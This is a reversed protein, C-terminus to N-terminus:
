LPKRLFLYGNNRVTKVIYDETLVRLKARVRGTLVDMTRSLPDFEQQYIVSFLHEKSVVKEPNAILQGLLSTEKESLAVKQSGLHLEQTSIDLALDKYKVVFGLPNESKSQGPYLRLVSRIRALLETLVYPKVVYQDAGADLCAVITQTNDNGTIMVVPVTISSKISRCLDLGTKERPGLDYDLLVIDPQVRRLQREAEKASVAVFCKFRNKELQFKLLRLLVEDDDVLLATTTM